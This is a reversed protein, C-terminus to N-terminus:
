EAGAEEEAKRRSEREKRKREREAEMEEMEKKFAAEKELRAQERQQKQLEYKGDERKGDELKKNFKAIEADEERKKENEETIRTNENIFQAAIRKRRAVRDEAAIRRYEILNMRHLRVERREQTKELGSVMKPRWTHFVWQFELPEAGSVFLELGVYMERVTAALRIYTNAVLISSQKMTESCLSGYWVYLKDYCDLLYSGQESLDWQSYNVIERMKLQGDQAYGEFLRPLWHSRRDKKCYRGPGGIAKWFDAMAAEEDDGEMLAVTAGKGVRNVLTKISEASPFIRSAKGIWIFTQEKTVLMFTGESNLFAASMEVPQIARVTESPMQLRVDLLLPELQWDRPSEDEDAPEEREGNRITLLSNFLLCFHKPESGQHIHVQDVHRGQSKIRRELVPFFGFMFQPYWQNGAKAGQWFYVRYRQIEDGDEDEATYSYLVMYCSASWFTGREKEPLKEFKPGAGTIVWAEITGSGDDLNNPDWYAEELLTQVDITPPPASDAVVNFNNEEVIEDKWDEFKEKFLEPEASELVHKIRAYQPREAMEALFKQALLESAARELPSSHKGKWNYVTFFADFIVCHKSQLMAKALPRDTIELLDFKGDVNQTRWIRYKPTEYAVFEDQIHHPPRVLGFHKWFDATPNQGENSDDEVQMVRSRGMREKNALKSALEVAKFRDFYTANAGHWVWIVKGEDLLFAHKRNLHDSDLGMEHTHGDAAVRYLSPPGHDLDVKNFESQTGGQEVHFGGYETETPDFLDRFEDTEEGEELRVQRFKCPIENLNSMASLFGSLEGIRFAAGGSKDMTTESGLWYFIVCDKSGDDNEDINLVLYTERTLFKGFLNVQIPKPLFREMRWVRLGNPFWELDKGFIAGYEDSRDERGFLLPNVMYTKDDRQEEESFEDDDDRKHVYQSLDKSKGGAMASIMAAGQSTFSESEGADMREFINSNSQGLSSASQKALDLKKQEARRKKTEESEEEDSSIDGGERLRSSVHLNPNFDEEHSDDSDDDGKDKRGGLTSKKPAV